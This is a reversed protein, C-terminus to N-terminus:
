IMLFIKYEYEIKELGHDIMLLELHIPTSHDTLDIGSLDSSSFEVGELNADGGAM